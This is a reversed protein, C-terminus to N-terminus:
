FCQERLFYEMKEELFCEINVILLSDFNKGSDENALDTLYNKFNANKRFYVSFEKFLKKTDIQM